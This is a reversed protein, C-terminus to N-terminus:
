PIADDDRTSTVLPPSVAEVTSPGDPAAFLEEPVADEDAVRRRRVELWVDDGGRAM